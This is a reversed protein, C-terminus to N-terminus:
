GKMKLVALEWPPIQLNAGDKRSHFQTNEAHPFVKHLQILRKKDRDILECSAPHPSFNALIMIGSDYFYVGLNTLCSIEINYPNPIEHRIEQGLMASWQTKATWDQIMLPRPPLFQEKDPSFEEHTFTQLNLVLIKGGEAPQNQTLIPIEQGHAMVSLIIKAQTPLPLPRFNNPPISTLNVIEQGRLLFKEAKVTDMTLSAFPAFGAAQNLESDHLKMLFDPTVIITSGNKLWQKVADGIAPDDAAQCPLFVSAPNQPLQACPLPSLGLAAAYDFLYLNAAGGPGSGDSQPPKYAPMGLPHRDKLLKGLAYVADHRARFDRLCEHSQLLSGAEFLVIERAGALVNQYAQMLYLEPSCDGFDYWGGGIKDGAISKLWSYNIYGQTPMVYGYRKTDPRRTETGVWIRDFRQPAREVDYGYCHFRDYWQPFKLIVHVSPNAARAPKFVCEDAIQMMLDLRYQPWSLDGKAKISEETEDDTAFFDDIMIEDFMAAIKQFHAALDEQTKPNQYNMWIEKDNAAVGFGNGALTAVGVSVQLSQQRFFDRAAALNDLSAAYGTRISELYVKEVGLDRFVSIAKQRNEPSSLYHDVQDATVYTQFQPISHTQAIVCPSFAALVFFFIPVILRM